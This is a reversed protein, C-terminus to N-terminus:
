RPGWASIGILAGVGIVTADTVKVLPVDIAASNDNDM